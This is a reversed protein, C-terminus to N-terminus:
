ISSPRILLRRAAALGGRPYEPHRPRDVILPYRKSTQLQRYSFFEARQASFRRHYWQLLGTRRTSHPSYGNVTQISYVYM